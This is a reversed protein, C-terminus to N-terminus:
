PEMKLGAAQYAVEIPVVITGTGYLMASSWRNTDGKKGLYRLGSGEVLWKGQLIGNACLAVDQVFRWDLYGIDIKQHDGAMFGGYLNQAAHGTFVRLSYREYPPFNKRIYDVLTQSDEAVQNLKEVTAFYQGFGSGIADGTFLMMDKALLYVTGGNSHGRVLFPTLVRGGGLDFTKAHPFTTYVAPDIGHQAKPATLDEGEPMWITTNRDLLAGTMGDHDPHAHTIAVELTRKGILAGLLARFEEAANKRPPIEDQKYGNIYNNGLDILMAKDAGCVLYM